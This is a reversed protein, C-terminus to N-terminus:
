DDFFVLVIFCCNNKDGFLFCLLNILWMELVGFVVVFDSELIKLSILILVDGGSVLKRLFMWVFLEMWKLWLIIVLGFLVGFVFDVDVFIVWWLVFLDNDFLNGFVFFEIVLCLDGVVFCSRLWRGKMLLMLFEKIGIM